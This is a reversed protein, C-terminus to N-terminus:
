DLNVVLKHASGSLTAGVTLLEGDARLIRDYLLIDIGLLKPVLNDVVSPLRCLGAYQEPICDNTLTHGVAVGVLAEAGYRGVGTALNRQAGVVAATEQREVEQAIYLVGKGLLCLEVEVEELLMDCLSHVKHVIDDVKLKLLNLKDDRLNLAVRLILINATYLKLEPLLNLIHCELTTTGAQADGGLAIHECCETKAVARLLSDVECYLYVLGECHLCVAGRNHHCLITAGKAYEVELLLLAIRHNATDKLSCRLEALKHLLITATVDRHECDGGCACCRKHRLCCRTDLGYEAGYVLTTTLNVGRVLILHCRENVLGALLKDLVIYVVM